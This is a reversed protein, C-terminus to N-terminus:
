VQSQTQVMNLQPATRQLMGLALDALLVATIVPASIKLAILMLTGAVAVLHTSMSGQYTLGGLPIIRFSNVLGGLLLYHGNITLYIMWMFVMQFQGLIASSQSFNPDVVGAFGFGSQTDQLEGAMEIVSFVLNAM